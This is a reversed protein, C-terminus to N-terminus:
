YIRFGAIGAPIAFLVLATVVPILKWKCKEIIDSFFFGAFAWIRSGGYKGKLKKYVV